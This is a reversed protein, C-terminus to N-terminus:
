SMSVFSVFSLFSQSRRALSPEFVKRAERLSCNKTLNQLNVQEIAVHGMAQSHQRIEQADYARPKGGKWRKHPGRPAKSRHGTKGPSRKEAQVAVITEVFRDRAEIATSDRAIHGIFRDKQTERILTQHVFQPLEM